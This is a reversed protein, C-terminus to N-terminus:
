VDAPKNQGLYRKAKNPKLQAVDVIVFGDVASNFDLDYGYDAFIVGGPQTLEAYQKFLTPISVNMYALQSKLEAFECTYDKGPFLAALQEHSESRIQYPEIASVLPQNAPFHQQYFYVLMEKARMPYSDSISVAGFLYRYKPNKSLLAGIGYWLYDLSRRGWYKAQVFSRGLELGQELYPEMAPLYQFLTSSYLGNIDQNQLLAHTDCLRYAGVIELDTDDWLILHQYNADYADVDRRRGTGEGVSRFTLERVRGLERIVTSDPSFQHLYIEKGDATNGLHESARIEDRLLRRNEPHAIASETEFVPTKHDAIRQLHDRFM